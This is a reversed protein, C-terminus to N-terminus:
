FKKVLLDFITTAIYENKMSAVCLGDILIDYFKPHRILEFTYQKKVVKRISEKKSDM